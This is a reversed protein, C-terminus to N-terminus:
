FKLFIQNDGEPFASDLNQWEIKQLADYLTRLPDGKEKTLLIQDSFDVQLLENVFYATNLTQLHLIVQLIM